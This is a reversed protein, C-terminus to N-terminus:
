VNFLIHMVDGDDVIYSKGEQRLVGQRKSEAESGFRVLDEYTVVESRIFGRAMDSHIKGAARQADDGRDITWARVEVPGGTFFTIQDLVRYSLRVMRDLGSEGAGLSERFEAEDEPAMQALEMELNGILVTPEIGHGAVESDMRAQLPDIQGMQEEGANVVVIVPKVTLLGFEGVRRHQEGTLQQDRIARGSELGDRLADILTRERQLAERDGSRARKTSQAIRDLRRDLIELDAFTLEYLMTEIDRFADVGSGGDPVSPDEFARAVIVLADATQLQNLYTGSIGRTKGLGEPAAPLDIYTIEAPTIRSPKYIEALAALRTDPVKAVGINPRSAGSYSAVQASGQTAANFVTTKGSYPLGIITLQM